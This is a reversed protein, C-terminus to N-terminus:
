NTIPYTSTPRSIKKLILIIQQIPMTISLISLTARRKPSFHRQIRPFLGRLGCNFINNSSVDHAGYQLVNSCLRPRETYCQYLYWTLSRPFPEFGSTHKLINSNIPPSLTERLQHGPLRPVARRFCHLSFYLRFLSAISLRSLGDGYQLVNQHRHPLLTSRRNYPTHHTHKLITLLFYGHASKTLNCVLSWSRGRLYDPSDNSVSSADMGQGVSWLDSTFHLDFNKSVWNATIKMKPCWILAGRSVTNTHQFGAFPIAIRTRIWLARIHYITTTLPPYESYGSRFPAFGSEASHWTIFVNVLWISAYEILASNNLPKSGHTHKLITFNYSPAQTTWLFLRCFQLAMPEFGIGWELTM